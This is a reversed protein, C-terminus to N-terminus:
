LKARKIRKKGKFVFNKELVRLSQILPSHLPIRREIPLGHIVDRILVSTDMKKKFIGLVVGRMRELNKREPKPREYADDDDDDDDDNEEGDKKKKKIPQPIGGKSIVELEIADGVCFHTEWVVPNSAKSKAMAENTLDLMLKSARKRPSKFKEYDRFRPRRGHHLFDRDHLEVIQKVLVPDTIVDVDEDQGPGNTTNDSFHRYRNSNNSSLPSASSYSTTTWVVADQQQRPMLPCRNPRLLNRIQFM